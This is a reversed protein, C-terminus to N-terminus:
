PVSRECQASNLYRFQQASERHEFSPSHAVDPRVALLFAGLHQFVKLGTDSGLSM